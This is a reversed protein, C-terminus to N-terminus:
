YQHGLLRVSTMDASSEAVDVVAAVYAFKPSYSVLVRFFLTTYDVITYESKQIRSSTLRHM